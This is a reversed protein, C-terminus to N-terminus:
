RTSVNQVGRHRVSRDLYGRLTRYPGDAEGAALRLVRYLERRCGAGCTCADVRRGELSAGCVPCRRSASDESQTACATM